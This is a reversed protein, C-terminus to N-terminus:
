TTMGARLAQLQLLLNLLITLRQIAADVSVSEGNLLALTAPGVYGGATLGHKTQYARVAEMTLPGFYGTVPGMYVGETILREQLQIVDEGRMGQGLERAFHYTEAGLVEGVPQTNRTAGRRSGGGSSAEEVTVTRQVQEASNGERDTADYTLTYVGATSTDVSGGVVVSVSGDVADQATAGPDLFHEGIEVTVTRSGLLSIVPAGTDPVNNVTITVSAANSDAQGDNAKYTFSDTGDFYATPTYTFSGDSSLVLSGHSVTSALVASLASLEPDSDNALVGPALVSLTGHEDVAYADVVATPTSNVGEGSITINATGQATHGQGDSITFTFSDSGVYLSTPLYQLYTTTSATISGHSPTGIDLFTLTDGDTDAIIGANRLSTIDITLGSDRQITNTYTGATPAVNAAAEVIVTRTVPVAANGATDTAGYTVAYTGAVATNVTNSTISATGESSSAGADTYESGTSVTVSASGTLTIVPIVTDITVSLTSTQPGSGNIDRVIVAIAHSGDTFLGADGTYTWGLGGDVSVQDVYSGLNDVYVRVFTGEEVTGSFTPTTDSTYNDTSSEGTDSGADLDPVTSSLGAWVTAPSLLLAFALFAGSLLRTVM